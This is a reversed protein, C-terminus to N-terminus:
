VMCQWYSPMSTSDDDVIHIRTTNPSLLADEDDTMLRGFFDEEPEHIDDNLVPISVNFGVNNQDFTLTQTRASYDLGDPPEL